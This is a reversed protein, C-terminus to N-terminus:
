KEKIEKLKQYKEKLNDQISKVSGEINDMKLKSSVNEYNYNKQIKEEMMMNEKDEKIRKINEVKDKAKQKM